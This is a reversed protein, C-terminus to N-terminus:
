VLPHVDDKDCFPTADLEPSYNIPLASSEKSKLERHQKQLYAEVNKVSEKICAQSGMSWYTKRPQEEFVCTGIDAGLQVKPTGRSKPKLLFHQDLKDVIAKPNEAV